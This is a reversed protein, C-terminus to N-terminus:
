QFVMEGLPLGILMALFPLETAEGICYVATMIGVILYHYWKFKQM